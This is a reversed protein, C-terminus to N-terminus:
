FGVSINLMKINTEKIIIIEVLLNLSLYIVVVKLKCSELAFICDM